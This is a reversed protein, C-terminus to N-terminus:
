IIPMTCTCSALMVTIETPTPLVMSMLSSATMAESGVQRWRMRRCSKSSTSERFYMISLLVQSPLGVERVVLEHKSPSKAM